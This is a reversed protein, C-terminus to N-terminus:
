RRDAEPSDEDESVKKLFGFVSVKNPGFQSTVGILYEIEFGPPARDAFVDVGDYDIEIQVPLNISDPLNGAGGFFLLVAGEPDFVQVNAFAADGVYLRGERDIAIGKPRTFQGLGKGISGFQQKFRGKSDYKMVRYNGGDVVYVNGEPDVELGTPRFLRHEAEVGEDGISRQLEGSKKDFVLVRM